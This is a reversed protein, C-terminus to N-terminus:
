TRKTADRVAKRTYPKRDSCEATIKGTGSQKEDEEIRVSVSQVAVAGLVGKPLNGKYPMYLRSGPTYHAAYAEAESRTRLAHGPGYDAITVHM